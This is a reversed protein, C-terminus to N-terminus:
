PKKVAKMKPQVEETAPHAATVVREMDDRVKKEAYVRGM